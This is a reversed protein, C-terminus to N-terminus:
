RALSLPPAKALLKRAWTKGDALSAHFSHQMHMGGMSGMISMMTSAAFRRIPSMDSSVIAIGPMYAQLGAKNARYWRSMREGRERGMTDPHHNDILIVFPQKRELLRIVFSLYDEFERDDPRRRYESILLPWDGLHHIACDQLLTGSTSPWAQAIAAQQM